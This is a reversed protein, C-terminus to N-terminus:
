GKCKNEGITAVVVFTCLEHNSRPPEGEAVVEVGLVEFKEQLILRVRTALSGARPKTTRSRLEVSSGEGSVAIRVDSIPLMHFWGAVEGPSFDGLGLRGQFAEASATL